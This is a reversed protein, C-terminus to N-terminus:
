YFPKPRGIHCELGFHSRHLRHRQCSPNRRGPAMPRLRCQQCPRKRRARGPYRHNPSPLPQVNITAETPASKSARFWRHPSASFSCCVPPSKPWKAHPHSCKSVGTSLVLGNLSSTRVAPGAPCRGRFPPYRSRRSPNVAKVDVKPEGWLNLVWHIPACCGTSKTASVFPQGRGPISRWHWIGM